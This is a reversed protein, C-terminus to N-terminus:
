AEVFLRYDFIIFCYLHSGPAAVIVVASVAIEADLIDEFSLLVVVFSDLVFRRVLNEQPVVSINAQSQLIKFLRYFYIVLSVFHSGLIVEEVIIPSECLYLKFSKVVSYFAIVLGYEQTGQIMYIQFIPGVQEHFFAHALMGYAIDVLGDVYLGVLM